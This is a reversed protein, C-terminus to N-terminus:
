RHRKVNINLVLGFAFIIPDPFHTLWNNIRWKRYSYSAFPEHSGMTGTEDLITHISIRSACRAVFNYFTQVFAVTKRNGGFCNISFMQFHLRCIAVFWLLRQIHLLLWNIMEICISRNEDCEFVFVIIRRWCWVCDYLCIHLARHFIESHNRKKERM